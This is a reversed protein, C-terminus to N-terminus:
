VIDKKTELWTLLENRKWRLHRGIKYAPCFLGLSRQKYISQVPLQLLQSVEEISLLRDPEDTSALTM